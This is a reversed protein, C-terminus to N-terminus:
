THVCFNVDVKWLIETIDTYKTDFFLGLFDISKASSLKGKPGEVSRLGTLEGQLYGPAKGVDSSSSWTLLQIENEIKKLVNLQRCFKEDKDLLTAM